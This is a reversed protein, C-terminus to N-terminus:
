LRLRDVGDLAATVYCEALTPYSIVSELFYDVTGGHAIVAQGIHILEAADDGIIHVGLLLRNEINFLLKLLGDNNGTIVNKVADQYRAKGVEYPIGEETLEFETKGVMAMEPITKVMYPFLGAYSKTPAGFAHKAAMRGQIQSTSVLDPFGIVGGVAYIGEVSTQYHEDVKLRRRDDAEIGVSELNLSGTNGTRGVCYMVADSIIQKGSALMVRIGDGAEDRLYEIDLVEEGLRLLVGEQRLYYVLTDVIEDDAFTLMRPNKNVLTVRIGLAAFTCGYELGIPGAGVITLTRPLEQLNLIDDSVFILQGDTYVMPPKTSSTGVAICAKDTTITRQTRGDDSTLGITHRDIFSAEANIVEVKARIIQTRLTEAQNQMVYSTRVMLDSMKIDKKMSEAVGYIKRENYGTFHLVAERLTKSPISIDVTVGGVDPQREILAVRKGLRSAQIATAQGAPGAGIVVWDYDYDTM